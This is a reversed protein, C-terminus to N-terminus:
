AGEKRTTTQKFEGTEKDYTLSFDHTDIYQAIEGGQESVHATKLKQRTIFPRNTKVAYASM